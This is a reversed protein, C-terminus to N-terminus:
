NEKPAEIGGCVKRGSEVSCSEDAFGGEKRDAKKSKGTGKRVIVGTDEDTEIGKAKDDAAKQEAEEAAAREAEAKAREDAEAAEVEAREADRAARTEEDIVSALVIVPVEGMGDVQEVVNANMAPVHLTQFFSLLEEDTMTRPALVRVWIQDAVDGIFYRLGIGDPLVDEHIELGRVTMFDRGQFKARTMGLEMKIGTAGFSTFVFDPHRLLEFVVSRAGNVYTQRVQKLGNGERPNLVGRVYRLAKEDADPPLFADLDSPETARVTWGEPAKPMMAALEAPLAAADDESAGVVEALSLWGQMYEGVTVGDGDGFKAMRNVNWFDFALYGGLSMLSFFLGFVIRIV